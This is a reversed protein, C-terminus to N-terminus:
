LVIYIRNSSYSNGAKDTVTLTYNRIGAPVRSSNASWICSNVNACNLNIGGNQNTLNIGGNSTISVASVGSTADTATGRISGGLFRLVVASGSFGGTPLTKDISLQISGTSCNGAPDCSQDSNYTHAGELNAILPPPITPTGSSPEPDNSTWGVTVDAKYWGNSNAPRDPIGTVQPPINDNGGPLGVTSSVFVNSCNILNQTQISFEVFQPEIFPCLPPVGFNSARSSFAAESGSANISLSGAGKPDPALDDQNYGFYHYDMTNTDIFVLGTESNNSPFVASNGDRSYSLEGFDSSAFIDAQDISIRLMKTIGYALDRRYVCGSFECEAPTTSLMSLDNSEFYAYRGDGSLYSGVSYSYDSNVGAQNVDIRQTNQTQSDFLEVIQYGFSNLRQYLIKTGDSSLGRSIGTAIEQSSGAEMDRIYTRPEEGSQSLTIAFKNGDYSSDIPFDSGVVNNDDDFSVLSTEGSLSDHRFQYITDSARPDINTSYHVAFFVYRGSGSLGTLRLGQGDQPIGDSNVSVMKTIDSERDRLYVQESTTIQDSLNTAQSIFAVYRGDDSILTVGSDDNSFQGGTSQSILEPYSSQAFVKSESSSLIQIILTLFFVVLVSIIKISINKYIIM